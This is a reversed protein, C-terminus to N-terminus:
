CWGQCLACVVYVPDMLQVLAQSGMAVVWVIVLSCVPEVAVVCGASHGRELCARRMLQIIGRKSTAQLQVTLQTGGSSAAVACSGAANAQQLGAPPQRLCADAVHPCPLCKQAVPQRPRELLRGALHATSLCAQSIARSCPLNKRVVEGQLLTSTEPRQTRQEHLCLLLRRCCAWSRAGAATISRM